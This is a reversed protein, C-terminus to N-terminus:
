TPAGGEPETAVASQQRQFEAFAKHALTVYLDDIGFDDVENERLIEALDDPRAVPITVERTGDVIGRNWQLEKRWDRPGWYNEDKLQANPIEYLVLGAPNSCETCGPYLALAYTVGRPGPFTLTPSMLEGCGCECM